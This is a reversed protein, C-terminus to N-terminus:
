ARPATYCGVRDQQQKAIGRCVASGRVCRVARIGQDLRERLSQERAPDVDRHSKPLNIISGIYDLSRAVNAYTIDCMRSLGCIKIGTM